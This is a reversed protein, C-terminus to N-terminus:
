IHHRTTLLIADDFERGVGVIQIWHFREVDLGIEVQRPVVQHPIRARLEEEVEGQTRCAELHSHVTTRVFLHGQDIEARKLGNVQGQVADHLSSSHGHEIVRGAVLM